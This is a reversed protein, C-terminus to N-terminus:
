QSPQIRLDHVKMGLLHVPSVISPCLCNDYFDILKPLLKGEWFDHDYEIREVSIGKNTFIVFDCWKRETVALQGQIQSYYPHTRKLESVSTGDSRTALKCCFDSQKSADIPALDRYKYPCKIEALGFHNVSSPDFVYADPSVGIFPHQECVVFGARCAVLDTHGTQLQHDAYKQLAVSENEKGWETAKTSFEKPHLLQKVLSDPSTTPLLQFIRGFMSATLRYRRACYWLQSKSQDKTNVELERIQQSTLQLSKKFLAVRKVLESQSPVVAGAVADAHTDSDDSIDKWVRVNIDLLLSVGLGKGQVSKM